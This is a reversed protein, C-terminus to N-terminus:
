FIFYTCAKLLLTIHFLYIYIYSVFFIHKFASHIFTFEFLLLPFIQQYNCNFLLNIIKVLVILLLLSVFFFCCKCNLIYTYTYTNTSTLTFCLKVLTHTHTFYPLILPRRHGLAFSLAYLSKNFFYIHMHTTFQSYVFMCAYMCIYTFEHANYVIYTPILIYTCDFLYIIILAFNILISYQLSLMCVCMRVYMINIYMCALRLCRSRRLIIRFVSSLFTSATFCHLVYTCVVYMCAYKYVYM